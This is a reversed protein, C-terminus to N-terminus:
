GVFSSGELLGGEKLRISRVVASLHFSTEHGSRQRQGRIGIEIVQLFLGLLQQAVYARLPALCALANKGKM